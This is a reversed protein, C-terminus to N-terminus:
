KRRRFEEATLSVGEDERIKVKLVEVPRLVESSAQDISDALAADGRRALRLDFGSKSGMIVGEEVRGDEWEVREVRFFPREEGDTGAHELWAKTGPPLERIEFYPRDSITITDERNQEFQLSYRSFVLCRVGILATNLLYRDSGEREVFLHHQARTKGSNMTRDAERLDTRRIFRRGRLDGRNGSFLSTPM